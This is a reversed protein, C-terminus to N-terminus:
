KVKRIPNIGNKRREWKKCHWWCTSRRYRLSLPRLVLQFYAFARFAQDFIDLLRQGEAEHQLMVQQMAIANSAYNSDAGGLLHSPIGLGHAISDSFTDM